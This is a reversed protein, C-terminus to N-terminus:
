LSGSSQPFQKVIKECRPDLGFENENVSYQWCRPCKLGPAHEVSVYLGPVATENLGDKSSALIVKSVILWEKIFEEATQKAAHLAREFGFWPAMTDDQKDIFLTVQAELSHKIVGKERLGEIAKLIAPRMAALLNWQDAEIGPPLPVDAFDQLHISAPKNKQYHDSILEATFSLVPAMLRTITDLHYWCVTQASRRAHGNAQDVYLRDKIIDIYVSSLQACFSGLEHFISTLEYQDYAARVRESFLHLEHLARRDLLRLDAIAIADKEHDYDYLNALLFRCTKRIKRYVEKVNTLLSESVVADGELSISSAWLRLCDTGM